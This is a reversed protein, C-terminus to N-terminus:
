SNLLLLLCTLGILIISLLILEKRRDSKAKVRIDNKLNELESESLNPFDFEPKSDHSNFGLKKRDFKGQAKDKRSKKRALASKFQSLGGHAM